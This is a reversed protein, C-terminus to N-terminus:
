VVAFPLREILAYTRRVTPDYDLFVSGSADRPLKFESKGSFMTALLSGDAATLTQRATSIKEGGVNLNVVSSATATLQAMSAKEAEWARREDRLQDVKAQYRRDFDAKQRDLETIAEDFALKAADTRNHLQIMLNRLKTNSSEMRALSVFRSHSTVM